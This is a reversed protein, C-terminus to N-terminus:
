LLCHLASGRPTSRQLHPWRPWSKTFTKPYDLGQIISSSEHLIHLVKRSRIAVTQVGPPLTPFPSSHKSHRNHNEAASLQAQTQTGPVNLARKSFTRCPCTEKISAGSLKQFLGNATGKLASPKHALWNFATYEESPMSIGSFVYMCVYMCVYM